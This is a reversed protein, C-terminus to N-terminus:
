VKAMVKFLIPTLSTYLTITLGRIEGSCAGTTTFCRYVVGQCKRLVGTLVSLTLVQCATLRADSLWPWGPSILLVRALIQINLVLLPLSFHSDLLAPLCPKMKYQNSGRFVEEMQCIPLPTPTLPLGSISSWTGIVQTVTANAALSLLQRSGSSTNSALRYTLHSLSYNYQTHTDHINRDCCYM